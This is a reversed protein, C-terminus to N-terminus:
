EQILNSNNFTQIFMFHVNEIQLSQGVNERLSIQLLATGKGQRQLIPPATVRIRVSKFSFTGNPVGNM